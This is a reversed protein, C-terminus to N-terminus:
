NILNKKLFFFNCFLNSWNIYLFFNNFFFSGFSLGYYLFYKFFNKYKKNFFSYNYYDIFFFKFYYKFNFFKSLVKNSSLFFSKDFIEKFNNIVSFPKFFFLFLLLLYFGTRNNFFFQKILSNLNFYPKLSRDYYHLYRGEFRKTVTYKKWPFKRFSFYKNWTNVTVVNNRDM